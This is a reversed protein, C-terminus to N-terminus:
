AAAKRYFDRVYDATQGLLAAVRDALDERIDFIAVPPQFGEELLLGNLQFKSIGLKEALFTKTSGYEALFDSLSSLQKVPSQQADM